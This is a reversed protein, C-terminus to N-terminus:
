WPFYEHWCLTYDLSTRGAMVCMACWPAWRSRQPLLLLGGLLGTAVVNLVTWTRTVAAGSHELHVLEGWGADISLLVAVVGYFVKWRSLPLNRSMLFLLVAEVMFVAIDLLLWPPHPPSPARKYTQDLYANMGHFFPVVLALVTVLAPASDCWFPWRSPRQRLTGDDNRGTAKAFEKLSETLALALVFTYLRQLNDLTDNM